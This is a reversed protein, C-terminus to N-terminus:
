APPAGTAFAHALTRASERADFEAMVHARGRRALEERREPDRALRELADAIAAEDRPATLIGTEGDIVIEPIGSLDSAIVAVGSAMAEMIVVPIGERRGSATPVSPAVLVDAEALRAAVESQTRAGAFEVVGDLGAESAQAELRARDEGDGVFVCRLALGREHLRRCAEILHTQGKVEHLTGVCVVSLAERDPGRRDTPAFADTRVGCHVVRVKDAWRGGCVDIILRRNYESIAVVFAAEAVKKPLGTQDRHLDSGHATFSFPIGALRRIIFGAVAPHNAFHCHVHTVGYQRMREATRVSKPFIGLAGVLFNPSRWTMGIIAALTRLYTVPHRALYRLNSWAIAPSVFPQYHAAAVLPRAEPQVIPATERILPHIQVDVGLEQLARIETVIFTETLRPFRSMVYGVVASM